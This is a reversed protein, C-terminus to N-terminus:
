LYQAYHERIRTILEHCDSKKLNSRYDAIVLFRHSIPHLDTYVACPSEIPVLIPSRSHGHVAYHGNNQTIKGFDTAKSQPGIVDFNNFISGYQSYCFHLGFFRTKLLIHGIVINATIISFSHM